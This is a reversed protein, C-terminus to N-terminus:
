REKWKFGFCILVVVIMIGYTIWLTTSDIRLEAYGVGTSVSWEVVRNQVEGCWEAARAAVQALPLPSILTIFASIIIIQATVLALPTVVISLWSVVGFSHSIIPATAFVCVTSVVIVSVIERLIGGKCDLSDILPKGVFVIAMVAVFSLAFSLEFLMTPEITLMAFATTAIANEVAYRSRAMHSLQLVSFMVAARIASTPYGCLAVYVWILAVVVGSKIINGRWLLTLPLLLLNILLAVMGVHLGSVALLHSVGSYSYSQKLEASRISKAGLSLSIAVDRGRSPPLLSELRNVAWRHLSFGKAPMYSIIRGGSISVRGSFGQRHMAEAYGSGVPTFPRIVSKIVMVDGRQPRLLSDTTIRVKARCREGNYSLVRAACTSYSGYDVVDDAVKLVMEASKAGELIQYSDLQYLMAGLAFLMVVFLKHWVATAVMAAVLVALWVGWGVCLSSAAIIGAILSIVVVFMPMRGFRENINAVSFTLM